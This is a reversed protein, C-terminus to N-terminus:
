YLNIFEMHSGVFYEGHHRTGKPMKYVDIDGGMRSERREKAVKIAEARSKFYKRRTNMIHTNKKNKRPQLSVGM